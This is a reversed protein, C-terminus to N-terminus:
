ACRRSASGRIGPLWPFRGAPSGAPGSGACRVGKSKRCRRLVLGSLGGNVRPTVHLRLLKALDAPTATPHMALWDVVDGHDPLELRSVGITEVDCGLARLRRSVRQMHELGPRDNDPWLTVNRHALPRFDTKEDSQASGATTALLGLKVLADACNEGEVFWCVPAAANVALEHLRYLPKGQPFAPEGLEYGKWNRHMPRLWKEGTQLHKARIKYLIPQGAADTYTHLGAPRFGMALAPKALRHAAEKASEIAPVSAM